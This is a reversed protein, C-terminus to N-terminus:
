KLKVLCGIFEKPNEVHIGHGCDFYVIQCDAILESVNKLDDESLATNWDDKAKGTGKVKRPFLEM